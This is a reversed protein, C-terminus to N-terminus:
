SILRTCYTGTVSSSAKSPTRKVEEMSPMMGARSVACAIAKRFVSMGVVVAPSTTTTFQEPRPSLSMAVM